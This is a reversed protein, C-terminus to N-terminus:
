AAATDEIFKENVEFAAAYKAQENERLKTVLERVEPELIFAITTLQNVLDEYYSTDSRLQTEKLNNLKVKLTGLEGERMAKQKNM